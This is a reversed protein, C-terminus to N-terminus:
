IIDMFTALVIVHLTLSWVLVGNPITVLFCQCLSSFGPDQSADGSLPNQFVPLLSGSNASTYSLDASLHLPALPLPDLMLSSTEESSGNRCPLPRLQALLARKAQQVADTDPLKSLSVSPSSCSPACLATRGASSM